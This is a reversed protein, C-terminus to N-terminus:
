DTEKCILGAFTVVAAGGTGIFLLVGGVIDKLLEAM